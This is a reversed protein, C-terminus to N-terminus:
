PSLWYPTCGSHSCGKLPPIQWFHDSPITLPPGVTGNVTDYPISLLASLEAKICTSNGQKVELTVAQALALCGSPYVTMM